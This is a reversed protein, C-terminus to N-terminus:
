SVEPSWFYYSGQHNQIQIKKNEVIHSVGFDSIKLTDNKDILLNEPKIDRHIIKAVSHCYELGLMLDIFYKRM